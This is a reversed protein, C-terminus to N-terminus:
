QSMTLTNSNGTQTLTASAGATVQTLTLKNLNGFQALDAKVNAASQTLTLTNSQGEQIVYASATTASLEQTVKANNNGYTDASTKGDQRIEVFQNAGAQNAVALNFDAGQYVNVVGSDAGSAQTVTAFNNAGLPYTGLKVAPASSITYPSTVPTNRTAGVTTVGQIIKVLGASTGTQDIEATNYDTYQEIAANAVAGAGGNGTLKTTATNGNGAQVIYSVNNTGSLNTTATNYTSATGGISCAATACQYVESRNNTASGSSPGAFTQTVTNHSGVVQSFGFDSKGLQTISAVNFDGDQKVKAESTVSAAPTPTSTAQSITIQNSNGKQTTTQTNITVNTAATQAFAVPTAFVSLAIVSASVLFSKMMFYVGNHIVIFVFSSTRNLYLPVHNRNM